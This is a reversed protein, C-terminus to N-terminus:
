SSLTFNAMGLVRSRLPPVATFRWSKKINSSYPPSNQTEHVTRYRQPRFTCGPVICVDSSVTMFMHKRIFNAVADFHPPSGKKKTVFEEVSCVKVVQFTAPQLVM